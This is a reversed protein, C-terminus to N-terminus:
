KKEGRKGLLSLVLEFEPIRIWHSFAGYSILGAGITIMLGLLLHTSSGRGTPIAALAVGWVALGMAASCVVTKFISRRVDEWGLSGLRGRLTKLLLALNVMSALSTALALGGHRLWQMLIVSLVINAVLSIAAM